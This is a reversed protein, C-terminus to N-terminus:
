PATPHMNRRQLEYMHIKLMARHLQMSGARQQQMSHASPRALARWCLCSSCPGDVLNNEMELISFNRIIMITRYEGQSFKVCVIYNIRQHPATNQRLRALIVPRRVGRDNFLHLDQPVGKIVDDGAAGPFLAFCLSSGSLASCGTDM